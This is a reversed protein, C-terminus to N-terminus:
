SEEHLPSPWTKAVEFYFRIPVDFGNDFRSPLQGRTVKVDIYAYGTSMKSDDIRRLAVNSNHGEELEHPICALVEVLTEAFSSDIVDENEDTEEYTWEFNIKSM